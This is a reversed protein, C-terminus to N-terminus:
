REEKARLRAIDIMDAVNERMRYSAADSTADYAQSWDADPHAELYEEILQDHAAMFLEKSM